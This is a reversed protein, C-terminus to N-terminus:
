LKFFFRFSIDSLFFFSLATGGWQATMKAKIVQQNLLSFILCKRLKDTALKPSDGFGESSKSFLREVESLGSQTSFLFIRKNGSPSKGCRRCGLVSHSREGPLHEGEGGFIWLCCVNQVRLLCIWGGVFLSQRALSVLRAAFKPSSILEDSRRYQCLYPAAVSADHGPHM